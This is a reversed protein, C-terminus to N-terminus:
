RMSSPLRTFYHIRYLLAVRPTTVFLGAGSQEGFTEDWVMGTGFRGHRRTGDWIWIM